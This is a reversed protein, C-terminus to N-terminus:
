DELAKSIYSALRYGGLTGQERSLASAMKTYEKPAPQAEEKIHTAVLDGKRHVKEIALAFSEDAWDAATKDGTLQPYNSKPHKRIMKKAQKIAKSIDRYEGLADDWYGHLRTPEGDKLLYLKNGGLDGKPLADSFTSATHLPQHIDGILHLLWAMAIAKRDNGLGSDQLQDMANGIGWIVNVDEEEYELKFDDPFHIESPVYHWNGHHEASLPHDRDRIDDPWHSARMMLFLGLDPANKLQKYELEWTLAYQPHEKLLTTVKQQDQNDLSFWAIAAVTRHGHGNWAYLPLSVLLFTLAIISLSKKMTHMYLLCLYLISANKPSYLECSDIPTQCVTEM